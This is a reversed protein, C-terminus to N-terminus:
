FELVVSSIIGWDFEDRGGDDIPFAYGVGIRPQFPGVSDFNVRVGATGTLVNTYEGHNLGREGVVEVLPIIRQIAGPLFTLDQQEFSWGFVAAYELVQQGSEEPGIVFSYGVSTQVSFHEGIRMLGFLKPVVEGDKSVDSNSPIAVELAPALTFDFREDDSVWQYIPHRASLEIPGIGESREHFSLATDPDIGRESEREYGAEVELTLLGFSKEIELTLEDAQFGSREAHFWDLRLEDDVDMEPARLPEPFWGHGYRSRSDLLGGFYRTDQPAAPVEEALATTALAATFALMGLLVFRMM